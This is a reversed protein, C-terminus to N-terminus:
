GMPETELGEALLDKFGGANYVSTYGMEKLTQGALASRGGSACHVLVTKDRAFAPDHYPSEPDAKFELMGRSALTAGKIKGSQWVENPDRVDVVLVGGARIKQAAEAPTLRPVAANAAALMDKVSKPM